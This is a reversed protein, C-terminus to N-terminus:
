QKYIICHERTLSFRRKEGAFVGWASSNHDFKRCSCKELVSFVYKFRTMNLIIQIFFFNSYLSEWVFKRFKKEFLLDLKKKVLRHELLYEFIYFRNQIMIIYFGLSLNYTLLTYHLKWFFTNNTYYWRNRESYGHRIEIWSWRTCGGHKAVQRTLLNLCKTCLNYRNCILKPTVIRYCRIATWLHYPKLRGSSKQWTSSM